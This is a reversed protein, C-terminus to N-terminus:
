NSVNTSLNVKIKITCHDSDLFKNTIKIFCKHSIIPFILSMDILSSKIRGQQFFTLEAADLITYDYEDIFNIFDQGHANSTGDDWM